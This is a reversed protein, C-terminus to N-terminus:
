QSYGRLFKLTDAIYNSGRSLLFGTLINGVFPMPSYVGFMALLDLDYCVGVFVGLIIAAVCQWKISKEPSVIMNMYSVAGEIVVATMVIGLFKDM